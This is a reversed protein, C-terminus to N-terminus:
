IFNVLLCMPHCQLCQLDRLHKIICVNFDTHTGYEVMGKPHLSGVNQRKCTAM